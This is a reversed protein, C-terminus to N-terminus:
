RRRARREARAARWAALAANWSPSNEAVGQLRLAGTLLEENELQVLTEVLKRQRKREERADEKAPPDVGRADTVM